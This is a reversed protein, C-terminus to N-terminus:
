LTRKGPKRVFWEFLVTTSVISIITAGLYVLSPLVIFSLNPSQGAITKLVQGAQGANASSQLTATYSSFYDQFMVLVASSATPDWGAFELPVFSNAISLAWFFVIPVIIFNFLGPVLIYFAFCISSVLLLGPLGAIAWLQLITLYDPTPFNTPEAVHLYFLTGTVAGLVLLALSLCIILLSLYRGWIYASTSVPTAMILEHTRLRYDQTVLRPLMFPILLTLMRMCLPVIMVTGWDTTATVVLGGDLTRPERRWLTVGVTGVLVALPLLWNIKLQAARQLEWRTVKWILSTRGSLRSDQAAQVNVQYNDITQM